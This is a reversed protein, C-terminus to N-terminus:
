GDSVVGDYDFVGDSVGVSGVVGVSDSDCGFVLGSVSGGVSVSVGEVPSVPSPM